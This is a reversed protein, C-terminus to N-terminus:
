LKLYNAAYALEQLAVPTDISVVTFNRAIEKKMKWNNNITFTKMTVYIGLHKKQLHRLGTEESTLTCSVLRFERDSAWLAFLNKAKITVDVNMFAQMITWTAVAGPM